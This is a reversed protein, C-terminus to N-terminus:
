VNDVIPNKRNLLIEKNQQLDKNQQLVKNQQIVAAKASDRKIREIKTVDDNILSSEMSDGVREEPRIYDKFVESVHVWGM